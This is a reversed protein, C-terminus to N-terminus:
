TKNEQEVIKVLDQKSRHTQCDKGSYSPMTIYSGGSIRLWEPVPYDCRGCVEGKQPASYFVCTSCSKM